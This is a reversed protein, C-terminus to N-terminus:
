DREADGLGVDAVASGVFGTPTLYLTRAGLYVGGRLGPADVLYALSDGDQEVPGEVGVIVFRGQSVSVSVLRGLETSTPRFRGPAGFPDFAQLGGRGADAVWLTQGDVALDVPEVLLGAGLVRDVAGEADLALVHSRGADAVYLTGGPGAAVAVPVGRRRVPGVSQRVVEAPDVDPVVIERVLRGEATFQLVTGAARDAVYITQGNTPDVDVPDLFAGDGTGVGSLRRVVVGGRLAVVADADVVWLTGDPTVALARADQFLADPAPTPGACAALALALLVISRGM